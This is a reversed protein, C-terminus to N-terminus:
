KRRRGGGAAFVLAAATIGGLPLLSNPLLTIVTCAGIGALGYVFNVVFRCAFPSM